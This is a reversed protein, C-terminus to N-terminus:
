LKYGAEQLIEPMAELPIGRLLNNYSGKIEQAFSASVHGLPDFGLAYTNFRSDEALYQNIEADSLNRMKIDTKVIKSIIKGTATNIACIGTLFQFDNGSLAKLREYEDEKSKPKELIKGALCGISDMGLVIADQHNKAVAEAKLRSLTRVLDEPDEREVQSEDVKSGEAAFDIGLFKLAEIRYPSTTALIIKSM